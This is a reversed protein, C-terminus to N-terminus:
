FKKLYAIKVFFRVVYKEWFPIIQLKVMGQYTKGNKSFLSGFFILLLM